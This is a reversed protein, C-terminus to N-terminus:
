KDKIKEESVLRERVEIEDDEGNEDEVNEDSIFFKHTERSDQKVLEWTVLCKM